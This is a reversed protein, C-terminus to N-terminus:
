LDDQSQIVAEWNYGNNMLYDIVSVNSNFDGWLQNYAFPKYQVYSLRIGRQIFNGENQYAKAGTGSYYDTGGLANVIDIVKLERSSLIKLTSSEEFVTKIGFRKCVHTIFCENMTAINPYSKLLFDSFEAYIEKFYQAKKYNIEVARLHNLKWGLEDKTPVENIKDGLKQSVPVKMRQPGNPTKIYHWNHMGENSFQADDLFVFIDALYIKYFYGLWPIYNPQHISIIKTGPNDV